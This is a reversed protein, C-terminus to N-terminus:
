FVEKVTSELDEYSEFQESVFQRNNKNYILTVPIAGDWDPNVKDIWSNYDGDVLAIVESKLQREKVFPVLKSEVQKAFDLSLLIVKVKQDKYAEHLQEFYPLEAVCPKCWTAWFNIVYTTDTEQNLLYAVQQFNTYVPFPIPETDVTKTPVSSNDSKAPAAQQEQAPSDCALFSLLFLMSFFSIAKM